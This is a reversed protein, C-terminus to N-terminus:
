NYKFKKFWIDYLNLSFTITGHNELILNNQTSGRRGYDFAINFSSGIRGIPFGVGFTIGFDNIQDGHIRLYSNTYYAGLRYHMRFPYVDSNRPRPTYEMGFLFSNSNALSDSNLITSNEWRVSKYDMGLLFKEGKSISFGIGYNSPFVKKTKPTITADLTDIVAASGTLFLINTKYYETIVNINSQNTYKGGAVIRWNNGLDTFYQLGFDFNFGSILDEKRINPNFSYAEELFTITQISLINGFLFNSNVGVSLNETILYSAGFFIQSLGGEGKFIYDLEGINPDYDNDGSRIHDIFNYNILSYPILGAGMAIKKSIPFSFALHSFNMDWPVETKEETAIQSAQLSSAFEFLMSLSDRSSYSAPNSFDIYKNSRLGMSIGGMGRNRSFGKFTLDGLGFSSYPSNFASQSFGQKAPFIILVFLILLKLIKFM